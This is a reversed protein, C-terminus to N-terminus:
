GIQPKKKKKKKKKKKRKREEKAFKESYNWDRSCCLLM